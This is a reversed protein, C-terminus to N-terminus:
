KQEYDKDGEIILKCYFEILDNEKYHPMFYIVEYKQGRFIFYMDNRPEKVASNRVTIKHTVSEKLSNGEMKIEQGTKNSPVIEAWVTLIKKYNYRLEDFETEGKIKSFVEIRHRLRKLIGKTM